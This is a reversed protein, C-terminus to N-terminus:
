RRRTDGRYDAPLQFTGPSSLQLSRFKPRARPRFERAFYRPPFSSVLDGPFQLRPSESRIVARLRASRVAEASRSRCRSCLRSSRTLTTRRSKAPPVQPSRSSHFRYQRDRDDFVRLAVPRQKAPDGFQFGRVKGRDFSYFQGDAPLDFGFSLKWLLLANMRLAERADMLPSLQAPSSATSRRICSTIPTLRSSGRIRNCVKSLRHSQVTKMARVTDM